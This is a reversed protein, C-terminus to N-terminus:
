GSAGESDGDAATRRAEAGNGDVLLRILDADTADEFGAAAGLEMTQLAATATMMTVGFERGADLVLPLDKATFIRLSSGAAFGSDLLPPIKSVMMQSRAQGTILLDYVQKLDAGAARALAMAELAAALHTGVLLQNVLKIMQGQGPESGVRFIQGAMPQLVPQALDLDEDAGAAIVTLTGAQAGAAGGTVPADIVRYGRAAIEAALDRLAQPGVTAMLIVLSGPALTELAGGEGLMSQRVQDADFPIAAVVQAGRAAEAASSAGRGGQARLKAVREPLVDFGTLDFGAEVLNAAMPLGMAGLGLFGIKAGREITVVDERAM